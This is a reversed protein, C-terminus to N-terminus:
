NILTIGILMLCGLFLTETVILAIAPGGVSMMQKLNIKMGVASIAILLLWSSVQSIFSAISSPVLGLSNLTALAIFGIVFRPLIPTRSGSTDVQSYRNIAISSILIVPALMAVRFLKVLTATEGVNNSVTFGAGVVQAVDHIAGGIFVGAATDSFELAQVLLPYTIMAVTSLVTVGVITFLLREEGRGDDSFLAAIAMAASAGCIAVSGATLLGFRLRQNLVRSLILGFLITLLASFMVLAIYKVGLGAILSASVRVGLLVIGIRLLRKSSFEIGTVARGDQGLFSVSIGLLLALLMAPTSYHKALFYASIGVICTIMVGPFLDIWQKKFTTLLLSEKYEALTRPWVYWRKHAHKTMKCEYEVM